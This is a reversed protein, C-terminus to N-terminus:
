PLTAAAGIFLTPQLPWPSVLVTEKGDVTATYRARAPTADATAAVLLTLWRLLAFDWRVAARFILDVDSRSRVEIVKAASTIATPQVSTFALGPGFAVRGFGLNEFRRGAVFMLQASGGTISLDADPTEVLLSRRLQGMLWIGLRARQQAQQGQREILAAVALEPVALNHTSWASVGALAALQFSLRGSTSRVAPVAPVAPPSELPARSPPSQTLAPTLAARAEAKPVGVPQFALLSVMSREVVYVVEALAVEDFGKDLSIRRVVIRESNRPILFLTAVDAARGDLWARALPAGPATDAAVDLIRDAAVSAVVILDLSVEPQLQALRHGLRERIADVVASDAAVQMVLRQAAPSSDKDMAMAMAPSGLGASLFLSLSVALSLSRLLFGGLASPRRPRPPTM